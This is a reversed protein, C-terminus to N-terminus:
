SAAGHQERDHGFIRAREVERDTRLSRPFPAGEPRELPDGPPADWAHAMTSLAVTRSDGGRHLFWRPEQPLKAGVRALHALVMARDRQLQGAHAAEYSDRISTFPIATAIPM